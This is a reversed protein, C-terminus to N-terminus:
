INSLNPWSLINRQYHYFYFRDILRFLFLPRYVGKKYKFKVKFECKKGTQKSTVVMKFTKQWPVAIDSVGLKIKSLSNAATNDSEIGSLTSNIYSHQSSPKIKIFRRMNISNSFSPKQFDYNKIIPYIMGKENIM